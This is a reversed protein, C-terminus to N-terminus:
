MSDVYDQYLRAETERDMEDEIVPLLAMEEKQVHAQIAECLEMGLRRFETWEAATLSCDSAAHALAAIRAGLPRIVRHENTLAAGIALDGSAALYSFLQEEEFDFHRNIESEVWTTLDSLLRAVGPEGATPPDDGRNRAILQELREVLAVTSVHEDHLTQSVRNTFDM